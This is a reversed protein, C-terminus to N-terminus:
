SAKPDACKPQVCGSKINPDGWHEVLAKAHELDNALRTWTQVLQEFQAKAMPSVAAEAMDRCHEANERCQKPDGPM